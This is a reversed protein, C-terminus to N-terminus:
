GKGKLYNHLGHYKHWREYYDASRDASRQQKIAKGADSFQKYKECQSHCGIKRDACGMCPANREM